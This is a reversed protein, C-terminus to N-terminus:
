NIFYIMRCGCGFFFCRRGDVMGFLKTDKGESLFFILGISFTQLESLILGIPPPRLGAGSTILIRVCINQWRLNERLASASSASCRVTTANVRRRKSIGTCEIANQSSTLRLM